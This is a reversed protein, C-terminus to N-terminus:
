FYLNFLDHHLNDATYHRDYICMPLKSVKYVLDSDPDRSIVMISYRQYYVYPKNNGFQTDGSSRSYIICPYELKVSEPPQFYVHTTGLIDTLVSHLLLRRQLQDM